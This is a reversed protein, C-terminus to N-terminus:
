DNLDEIPEGTKLVYRLALDYVKSALLWALLLSIPNSLNLWIFAVGIVVAVVFTRWSTATILNIIPIRHSIYSLVVIITAALVDIFQLVEM